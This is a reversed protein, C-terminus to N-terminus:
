KGDQASIESSKDDSGDKKGGGEAFAAAVEPHLADYEEQSISAPDKEHFWANFAKHTLPQLYASLKLTIYAIFFVVPDLKDSLCFIALMVGFIVYRRIYGFYIKKRADNEPLDLAKDLTRYMDTASVLATLIGFTWSICMWGANVSPVFALGATILLGILGLFIIGTRLELLTRNENKLIARLSM